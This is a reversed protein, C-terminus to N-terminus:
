GRGGSARKPKDVSVTAMSSLSITAEVCFSSAADGINQTSTHAIVGIPTHNRTATRGAGSRVATLAETAHGGFLVRNKREEAVRMPGGPRVAFDRSSAVHRVRYDTADSGGICRVIPAAKSGDLAARRGVPHAGGRDAALSSRLGDVFGDVVFTISKFSDTRGGIWHWGTV